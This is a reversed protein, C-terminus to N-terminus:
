RFIETLFMPSTEQTVPEMRSQTDSPEMLQWKRLSESFWTYTAKSHSPPQNQSRPVRNPDSASCKLDRAAPGRGATPTATTKQEGLCGTRTLAAHCETPPVQSRNWTPWLKITWVFMTFASNQPKLTHRAKYEKFYRMKLYKKNPYM